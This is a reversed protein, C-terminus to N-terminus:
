RTVRIGVSLGVRSAANRAFGDPLDDDSFVSPSRAADLHVVGHLRGGLPVAGEVALVGGWGSRPPEALGPFTWRTWEAALLAHVTARGPGGVLRRGLGIALGTATLADPTIVGLDGGRLVLDAPARRAAFEVRWAAFDAGLAAAIEGGTGPRFTPSGTATGDTAHAGHAVFGARVTLHVQAPLVAPLLLLALLRRLM